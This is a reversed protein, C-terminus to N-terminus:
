LYIYRPDGGVHNRSTQSPGNSIESPLPTWTILTEQGGGDRTTQGDVGTYGGKKLTAYLYEYIYTGGIFAKLKQRCM